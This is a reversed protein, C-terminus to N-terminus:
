AWGTASSRELAWRGNGDMIVAVHRPLQQPPVEPAPEASGVPTDTPAQSM